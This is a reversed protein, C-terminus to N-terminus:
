SHTRNRRRLRQSTDYKCKKRDRYALEVLTRLENPSTALKWPVVSIYVNPKVLNDLIRDPMHEYKRRIEKPNDIVLSSRINSHIQKREEEGHPTMVFKGNPTGPLNIVLIGSRKNQVSDYMSAHIEWDVHKRYKTQLGALVITVISKRLYEDRITNRIQEDTLRDSIDGTDVSGDVFVGNNEGISILEDKYAQDQKHHYTIFVRPPM